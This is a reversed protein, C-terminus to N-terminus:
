FIQSNLLALYVFPNVWCHDDDTLSLSLLSLFANALRIYMPVKVNQPYKIIKGV